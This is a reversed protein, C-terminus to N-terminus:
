KVLEASRVAATVSPESLPLGFSLQAPRIADRAEQTEGWWTVSDGVTAIFAHGWRFHGRLDSEVGISRLADIAAQGLNMSAEDRVAGVIVTGPQRANIWEAMAASAAPDAHTDFSAADLLAGTADLAVLNYGRRNPSVDRGNLFIHGFDGAEQGASRVLLGAPGARSLLMAFEDFPVTRGFRLRVDSLPPRGPRAPVDYVLETEAFPLPREGLDDGDVVVRVTQQPALASATLHLQAPGDGLPLM